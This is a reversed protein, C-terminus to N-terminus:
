QTEDRKKTAACRRLTFAANILALHSLGQPFNGLFAGSGVDVEEALLGLDNVLNVARGMLESADDCQGTLALAEVMWFTCAVFAGEEMNAGSYRYLMPGVGLEDRIAAISTALRDGREFGTRAALLVAADLDDTGAFFTYSCKGESWCNANIWNRIREAEDHWRAARVDAIQGDQALRHARDLAVWCGIKSITYHERERSSGCDPMPIEGPTAASIPSTLSSDPRPPM